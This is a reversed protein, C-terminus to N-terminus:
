YKITFSFSSKQLPIELYKIMEEPNLLALDTGTLYGKAHEMTFIWKRRKTLEIKGDFRGSIAARKDELCVELGFKQLLAESGCADWIKQKDYIALASSEFSYTIAEVPEVMVNVALNKYADRDEEPVHFERVRRFIDARIRQEFRSSDSGNVDPAKESLIFELSELSVDKRVSYFQVAKGVRRQMLDFVAKREKKGPQEKLSLRYVLVEGGNYEM